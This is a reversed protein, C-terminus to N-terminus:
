IYVCIIYVCEDEQGEVHRRHLVSLRLRPLNPPPEQTNRPRHPQAQHLAGPHRGKGEFGESGVPCTSERDNEVTSGCGSLAAPSRSKLYPEPNLNLRNVKRTPTLNSYPKTYSRTIKEKELTKGPPEKYPDQVKKKAASRRREAAAAPPARRREAPVRKRHRLRRASQQRQRLGGASQQCGKGTASGEHARSGSASGEEARSAGKEPPPAKRREAAEQARSAGKEPPPAKSREAAAPPAKRREAPM